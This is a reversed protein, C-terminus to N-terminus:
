CARGAETGSYPQEARDPDGIRALEQDAVVDDEHRARCGDLQHDPRTRLEHDAVAAHDLTAGRHSGTTVDEDAAMDAHAHTADQVVVSGLM